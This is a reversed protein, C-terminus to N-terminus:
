EKLRKEADNEQKKIWEAWSASQEWLNKSLDIM